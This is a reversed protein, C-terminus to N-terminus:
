DGVLLQNSIMSDVLTFSSYTFKKCLISFNVLYINPLSHHYPNPKTQM